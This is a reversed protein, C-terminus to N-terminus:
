GELDMKAGCNPCYKFQYQIDDMDYEDSCDICNGCVSCVATDRYFWNITDIIETWRGHKVEQVDAVPCREIDDKFQKYADAWSVPAVKSNWEEAIIEDCIHLIGTRDIYEALIRVGDWKKSGSDQM